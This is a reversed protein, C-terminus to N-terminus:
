KDVHLHMYPFHQLNLWRFAVLLWTSHMLYLTFHNMEYGKPIVPSLLIVVAWCFLAMILPSAIWVLDTILPFGLFIVKVYWCCFPSIDDVHFANFPPLVMGWLVFSSFGCLDGSRVYVTVCRGTHLWQAPEYFSWCDWFYFCCLLLKVSFIGEWLCSIYWLLAVWFGYLM